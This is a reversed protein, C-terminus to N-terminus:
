QEYKWLEFYSQAIIKLIPKYDKKEELLQEWMYSSLNYFDNTYWTGIIYADKLYVDDVQFNKYNVISEKIRSLKKHTIAIEQQKAWTWTLSEETEEPWFYNWFDKKCKHFDNSCSLSTSYYFLAERSLWIGQLIKQTEKISVINWLNSTLVLANATKEKMEETPDLIKSYYNYASSFKKM